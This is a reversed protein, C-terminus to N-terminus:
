LSILFLQHCCKNNLPLFYGKFAMEVWRTENRLVSIRKKQAGPYKVDQVKRMDLSWEKVFPHRTLFLYRTFIGSDAKRM